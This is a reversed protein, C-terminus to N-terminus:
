GYRTFNKTVVTSTQATIIVFVESILFVWLIIKETSNSLRLHLMCIPESWHGWVRRDWRRRGAQTSKGEWAASRGRCSPLDVLHPCAPQMGAPCAAVQLLPFSHIVCVSETGEWFEGTLSAMGEKLITLMPYLCLGSTLPIKTSSGWIFLWSMFFMRQPKMEKLLSTTSEQISPILLKINEEDVKSWSEHFPHGSMWTQRCWTYTLQVLMTIWQEGEARPFCQESSSLEKGIRNKM